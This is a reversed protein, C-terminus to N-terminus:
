LSNAILWDIRESHVYDAREHSALATLVPTVVAREEEVLDVAGEM